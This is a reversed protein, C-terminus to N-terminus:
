DGLVSGSTLVLAKEGMQRGRDPQNYLALIATEIYDVTPSKIIVGTVGDEIVRRAGPFDTSIIPLGCAAAELFIKPIGEPYSSPLVVADVSRLLAPMDDVYGHYRIIGHRILDIYQGGIYDLYQRKPTVMELRIVDSALRELGIIKAQYLKPPPLIENPDHALEIEIDSSSKVQCLLLSGGPGITEDSGSIRASGQRVVGICRQCDGRQCSNEVPIGAKLAASLLTENKDFHVLQEGAPWNMILTPMM